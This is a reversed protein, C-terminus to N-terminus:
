EICDKIVIISRPTGPRAFSEETSQTLAVEPDPERTPLDEPPKSSPSPGPIPPEDHASYTRLGDPAVRAQLPISRPKSALCVLFPLTKDPPIQPTKN